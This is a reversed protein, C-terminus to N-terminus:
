HGFLCVLLLLFSVYGMWADPTKSMFDVDVRGKYNRLTISVGNPAEDDGDELEEDTGEGYRCVCVRVCM